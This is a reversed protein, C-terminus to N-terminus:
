LVEGTDLTIVSSVMGSLAEHHSALHSCILGVCVGNHASLERLINSDEESNFIHICSEELEDSHRKDLVQAAIKHNGKIERELSNFVEVM